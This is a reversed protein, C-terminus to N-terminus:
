RRSARRIIGILVVLLATMVVARGQPDHPHPVPLDAESGLAAQDANEGRAQLSGYQAMAATNRIQEIQRRISAIHERASKACQVLEGANSTLRRADELLSGAAAQGKNQQFGNGM